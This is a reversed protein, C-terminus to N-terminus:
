DTSTNIQVYRVSLFRNSECICDPKDPDVKSVRGNFAEGNNGDRMEFLGKLEGQTSKAHVGLDDGTDTWRM